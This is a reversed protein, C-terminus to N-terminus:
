QKARKRSRLLSRCNKPRPCTRPAKTGTRAFTVFPEGCVECTYTARPRRAALARAAETISSDTMPVRGQVM